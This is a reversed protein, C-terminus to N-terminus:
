IEVNKNKERIESLSPLVRCIPKWQKGALPCTLLRKWWGEPRWEGERMAPQTLIVRQFWGDPPPPPKGKMWNGTYFWFHRWWNNFVRPNKKRLEHSQKISIKKLISVAVIDMDEQTANQFDWILTAEQKFVSEPPLKKREESEPTTNM